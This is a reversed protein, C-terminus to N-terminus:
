GTVRAQQRGLLVTIKMVEKVVQNGIFDLMTIGFSQCCKGVENIFSFITFQEDRHSEPTCSRRGGGAARQGYFCLSNQPRRTTDQFTNLSLEWPASAEKTDEPAERM